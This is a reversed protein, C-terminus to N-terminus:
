NESGDEPAPPYGGGGDEAGDGGEATGADDDEEALLSATESYDDDGPAGNRGAVGGNAGKNSRLARNTAKDMSGKLVHVAIAARARDDMGENHAVRILADQEAHAMLLKRNLQTWALYSESEMIDYIFKLSWPYAKVESESSKKLLKCALSMQGKAESIKEHMVEYMRAQADTIDPARSKKSM